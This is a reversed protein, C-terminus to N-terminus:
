FFWLFVLLNLYVLKINEFHWTCAYVNMIYLGAFVLQTNYLLPEFNICDFTRSPANLM